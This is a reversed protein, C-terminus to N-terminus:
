TYQRVPQFSRRHYPTPGHKRLANLHAKTGYGVNREFQYMPYVEGIEAMLRDRTVKAIVSAAAISISKADGKVISQQEILLSDIKMADVLLYNPQQKLSDVARKMALKSSQYINYYDIEKADAQGIGIAMAQKYITEYFHDRQEITLQKSDNLGPLYFDKPLIVAAAVVPGALPGRGVEDVGAILDIGTEYLETEIKTMHIFQEHLQLAKEQKQNYQKLLKQVGKREDTKLQELWKNSFEKQELKKKIVTITEQKSM